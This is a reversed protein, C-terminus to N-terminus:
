SSSPASYLEILKTIDVVTNKNVPFNYLIFTLIMHHHDRERKRERVRM